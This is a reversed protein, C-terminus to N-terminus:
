AARLRHHAADLLQRLDPKAILRQAEKPQAWRRQRVDSEKWIEDCHSVQMLLTIVTRLAGNKKIQYSGIPDGVVRGYLGAEEAAEKLAAEIFTEGPEIFGKPFLWRGSTATILCFETRGSIVRFPIACAQDITSPERFPIANSAM